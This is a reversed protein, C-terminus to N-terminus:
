ESSRRRLIPHVAEWGEAEGRAELEAVRQRFREVEEILVNREAEALSEPRARRWLEHQAARYRSQALTLDPLEIFGFRGHWAESAENGQMFRSELFQEGADHLANSAASVMTTAAGGRQRGPTVFLMELLPPQAEEGILLAAGVVADREDLAVRSVPLATGRKGDFFDKVNSRASDAIQSSDYDCYDMTNEFAALYTDVLEAEDEPFVPRLRCSSDVHCPRVESRVTVVQHRPTIHALGDWYEYKWGPKWPLLEFEQFSM